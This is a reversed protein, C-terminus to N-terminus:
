RRKDTLATCGWLTKNSSEENRRTLEWVSVNSESCLVICGTQGKGVNRDNTRKKKVARVMWVWAEMEEAKDVDASTM